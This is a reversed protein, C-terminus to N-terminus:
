RSLTTRPRLSDLAHHQAVSAEVPGTHPDSARYLLAEVSGM